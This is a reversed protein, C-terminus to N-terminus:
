KDVWGSRRSSGGGGGGGGGGGYYSGGRSTGRAHEIIVRPILDNFTMYQYLMTSCGVNNHLGSFM